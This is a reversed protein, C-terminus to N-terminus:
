RPVLVFLLQAISISIKKFPIQWETYVRLYGIIFRLYCSELWWKKAAQIHAAAGRANTNNQVLYSLNETFSLSSNEIYWTLQSAADWMKKKLLMCVYM